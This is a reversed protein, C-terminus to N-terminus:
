PCTGDVVQRFVEDDVNRGTLVMVLDGEAEGALRGTLGPVLAAAGSGEVRVGLECWLRRMCHAIEAETVVFVGALVAAARAFARASIGGELGEALTSGEPDLTEVACARELSLAFAPSVESQAGWVRRRAGPEEGAERALAWALGTGLGGGGVPVVVRDPVRGLAEVIEFGLSGGNGAVVFDDDYPSLFPWQRALAFARAHREAHDYGGGVREVTVHPREIARLKRQPTREPVVVVARWGLVGAAHAVGAGHNGASAAVVTRQGDNPLAQLAYLAGRVKFSGTMQFCEMALWVRCAGAPSALRDWSPVRLIAVRRLGASSFRPALGRAGELVSQELAVDPGYGGLGCTVRRAGQGGRKM